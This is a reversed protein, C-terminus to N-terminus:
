ARQRAAQMTAKVTDFGGLHGSGDFRQSHLQKRALLRIRQMKGM